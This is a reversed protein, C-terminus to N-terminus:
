NHPEDASQHDQPRTNIHHFERRQNGQQRAQRPSAGRDGDFLKCPFLTRKGYGRPTGGPPPRKDAGQGKNRPLPRGKFLPQPQSENARRATDDPETECLGKRKRIRCHHQEEVEQFQYPAAQAAIEQKRLDRIRPSVIMTLATYTAQRSRKFLSIRCSPTTAM